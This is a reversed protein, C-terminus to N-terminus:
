IDDDDSEIWVPGTAKAPATSGSQSKKTRKQPSKWEAKADAEKVFDVKLKAAPIELDDVDRRLTIDM